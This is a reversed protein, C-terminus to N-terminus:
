QCRLSNLDISNSVPVLHAENLPTNFLFTGSGSKFTSYLSASNSCIKNRGTSDTGIANLSLTTGTISNNIVGYTNTSGILAFSNDMFQNLNFTESAKLFFQLAPLSSSKQIFLNNEIIGSFSTNAAASRDIHLLTNNSSTSMAVNNKLNFNAAENSIKIMSANTTSVAATKILNGIINLNTSASNKVVSLPEGDGEILNHQIEVFGSSNGIALDIGKSLYTSTSIINGKLNINGVASVAIATGSAANQAFVSKEINLEFDPDTYQAHILSSNGSAADGTIKLNNLKISTTSVPTVFDLNIKVGPLNKLGNIEINAVVIGSTQANNIEIVSTSDTRNDNSIITTGSSHGILQQIGGSQGLNFNASNDRTYTTNERLCLTSSTSHNTLVGSITQGPGAGASSNCNEVKFDPGYLRQGSIDLWRSGMLNGDRYYKIEVGTNTMANAHTLKFYYNGGEYIIDSCNVIGNCYIEYSEGVGMSTGFFLPIKKYTYESGGDTFEHNGVILAHNFSPPAVYAFWPDTSSNINLTETSPNASPVGFLRYGSGEIKIIATTSATQARLSFQAMSSNPPITIQNSVAGCFPDNFIGLSGHVVPRVFASMEQNTNVVAGASNVPALYAQTCNNRSVSGSEIFLKYAVPKSFNVSTSITKSEFSYGVATTTLSTMINTIVSSATSSKIWIDTRDMSAGITITSQSQCLPDNFIVGSPTFELSSVPYISNGTADTRIIQYKICQNPAILEPGKIKIVKSGINYNFYPRNISIGSNNSITLNSFNNNNSVATAKVWYNNGSNDLSVPIQIETASVSCTSDTYISLNPLGSIHIPLSTTNSYPASNQTLKFKIPKCDDVTMIHNTGNYFLPFDAILSITNTPTPSPSSPNTSSVPFTLNPDNIGEFLSKSVSIKNIYESGTSCSTDVSSVGGEIIIQSIPSIINSLELTNPITSDNFYLPSNTENADTKFKIRNSIQDANSLNNKCIRLSSYSANSAVTANDTFWGWAFIRASEQNFIGNLSKLHLPLAAKLIQNSGATSLDLLKKPGGFLIIGNKLQYILEIDNLALANFWGNSMVSQSIIIPPRGPHTYKVQLEGSPGMPQNSLNYNTIYKGMIKGPVTKTVSSISIPINLLVQNGQIEAVVDGYYLSLTSDENNKFAVLIQILRQSGPLVEMSFEKPPSSNNMNWSLFQTPLNPGSANISVFQISDNLNELNTLKSNAISSISFSIKTKVAQPRSCSTTLILVLFIFFYNRFNM